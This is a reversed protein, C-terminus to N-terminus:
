FDDEFGDLDELASLCATVAQGQSVCSPALLEDDICALSTANVCRVLAAVQPGCYAALEPLVGCLERCEGRCRGTLGGCLNDCNLSTGVGGGGPADPNFAPANPNGLPSEPNGEPQHENPRPADPNGSPNEYPGDLTGTGSGDGSGCSLGLLSVLVAVASRQFSM